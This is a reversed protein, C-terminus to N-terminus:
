PHTARDLEVYNQHDYAAYAADLLTQAQQDRGAAFEQDALLVLLYGDLEPRTGTGVSGRDFRTLGFRRYVAWSNSQESGVNHSFEADLAEPWNKSGSSAATSNGAAALSVSAGRRLAVLNGMPADKKGRSYM